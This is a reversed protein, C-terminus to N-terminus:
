PPGHPPCGVGCVWGCLSFLLKHLGLLWPSGHCNQAGGMKTLAMLKGPAPRRRGGGLIHGCFEVEKVVFKCKKQDAILKHERLAELVCRIDRDHAQITEEWTARAETGIIIDDM